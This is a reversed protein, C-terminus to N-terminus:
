HGGGFPRAPTKSWTAPPRFNNEAMYGMIVNTPPDEVIKGKPDKLGKLEHVSEFLPKADEWQGDIYM